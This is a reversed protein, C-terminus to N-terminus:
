PGLLVPSVREPTAVDRGRRRLVGLRALQWVAALCACSWRRKEEPGNWLEVDLFLSHQYGANEVPPSWGVLGGMAQRAGMAPSRQGNTLWGAETVQPRSGDAGFPPDAVLLGEVLEALSGGPARVLGSERALYDCSM